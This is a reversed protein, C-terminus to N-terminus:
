RRFVLGGTAYQAPQQEDEQQPQGKRKRYAQYAMDAGQAGLSLAGMPITLPPYLSAAGSVAGLTSLAGSVNDGRNFKNYAETAEYPASFAQLYPNAKTLAKGGVDGLMSGYKGLKGMMSSEKLQQAIKANRLENAIEREAKLNPPLIVNGSPSISGGAMPGGTQIASKMGGATNLSEKSMTSGEPAIGTMAKTWNTDANPTTVGRNQIMDNQKILDALIQNQTKQGQAMDAVAKPTDILARKALQGTKAAVAVGEGVAGALLPPYESGEESKSQTEVYQIHNYINQADTKAQEDGGQAKKDAERLLGYLDQVNDAM